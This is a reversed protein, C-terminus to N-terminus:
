ITPEWNKLSVIEGVDRRESTTGRRRKPTAGGGQMTTLRDFVLSYIKIRAPFHANIFEM